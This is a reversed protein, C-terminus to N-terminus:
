DPQQYRSAFDRHFELYAQEVLVVAGANLGSTVDTNDGHSAGIHVAQRQWGSPTKVLVWWQGQALVLARTPVPIVTQSAGILEVTGALGDQWNDTSLLQGKVPQLVIPLAGDRADIPLISEVSVAIKQTSDIPIFWGRTGPKIQSLHIQAPQTSFFRARLLLGQTPAIRAIAMGPRVRSGNIQEIRTVIGPSPTRLETDRKLATLAAQAISREAQALGLAQEAHVLTQQTSIQDALTRQEILLLRIASHESAIAQSLRAQAQQIQATLNSGVLHGVVAGAQVVQGLYLTLDRVRGTQNARLAAQAIPAIHGFGTSFETRLAHETIISGPAPMSTQAPAAGAGTGALLCTLVGCLGLLYPIGFLPSRRTFHHSQNM